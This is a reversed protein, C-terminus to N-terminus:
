FRIGVSLQPGSFTVDAIPRDEKMEYTLHRYGLAMDGWGFRYGVGGFAQWTLDSGGTGIDAYYRLDWNGGLGARGRVGVIGDWYDKKANASGRTALGGTPGSLEWDLEVEMRAYRAGVIMDMRSNSTGGVRYGVALTGILGKLDSHTGSDIPVTVIGGPGTVQRVKSEVDDLNLYLVDVGFSWPGQEAVLTGMFVMKLKKLYGDPDAESSINGGGPLELRTNSSISPLFVNVDFQWGTDSSPQAYQAASQLPLALALIALATRQMMKSEGGTVEM